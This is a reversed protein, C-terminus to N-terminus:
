ESTRRKPNKQPKSNPIQSKNRRNEWAMQVAERVFELNAEALLVSTAGRKGWMGACPEFVAPAKKCFKRQQEPTLKVMGWGKDPYGLTVFIKGNVRFDPHDMHQSEVADPLSLALKRFAQATM